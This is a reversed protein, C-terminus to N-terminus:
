YVVYVVSYLFLYYYMMGAASDKSARLCSAMTPLDYILIMIIVITM